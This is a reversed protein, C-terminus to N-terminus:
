HSRDGIRYRIRTSVTGGATQMAGLDPRGTTASAAVTIAGKGACAAGAGPATNLGYDGSSKFPNGTLTITGITAYNQILEAGAGSSGNVKWTQGPGGFACDIMIMSDLVSSYVGQSTVTGNNAQNNWFICNRLLLSTTTSGGQIGGGQGATTTSAGNTDFSCNCASVHLGGSIGGLKNRAYVNNALFAVGGAGSNITQGVGSNDHIYSGSVTSNDYQGDMGNSVSNKIECDSVNLRTIGFYTGNNNNIGYKWGDFICQNITVNLSHRTFAVIGSNAETVSGAAVTCKFSLGQVITNDGDCNLGCVGVTATQLVPQTGWVGSYTSSKIITPLGAVAVTNIVISATLTEGSQIDVTWGGILDKFLQLSGMCTARKGGIAWALGSATVTYANGITVTWSGVSGTINIIASWRRGSATAVWLAASGDKLVASLDVGADTITVTTSTATAAASGSLATAPGAGSAATDTGAANIVVTPYAM